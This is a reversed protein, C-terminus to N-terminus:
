GLILDEGESRVPYLRLSLSRCPSTGDKLSFRVGHGPCQISGDVVHGDALSLGVHPCRSASCVFREGDRVLLLEVNQFKLVTTVDYQDAPGLNVESGARFRSDFHRSDM